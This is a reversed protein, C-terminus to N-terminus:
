LRFSLFIVTKDMYKRTKIWYVIGIILQIVLYIGRLIMRNTFDINIPVAIVDALVIYLLTTVIVKLSCSRSDDSLLSYYVAQKSANYVGLLLLACIMLLELLSYVFEYYKIYLISVGIIMSLCLVYGCTLFCFLTKGRYISRMSIPTSLLTELTKNEKEETFLSPALQVILLFSITAVTVMFYDKKIVPAAIGGILISVILFFVMAKDIFMEKLQKSIILNM